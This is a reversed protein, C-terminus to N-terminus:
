VNKQFNIGCRPFQGTFNVVITLKSQAPANM